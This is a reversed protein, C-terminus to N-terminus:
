PECPFNLEVGLGTPDQLFLQSIGFKPSDNRRFTVGLKALRKEFAAIDSCSFAVHDLYTTAQSPTDATGAIEMLHVIPKDGSYLWHGPLSITPRPGDSLGIVTTYFDRVETLLPQPAKINIHNLDTVPM